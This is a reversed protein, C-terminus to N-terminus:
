NEAIEVELTGFYETSIKLKECNFDSEMLTFENGECDRCLFSHDSDVYHFEACVIGFDWYRRDGDIFSDFAINNKMALFPCINVQDLDLYLDPMWYMLKSGDLHPHVIKGGDNAGKLITGSECTKDFYVVSGKLCEAYKNSRHNATLVMLRKKVM